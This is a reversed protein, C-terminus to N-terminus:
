NSNCENLNKAILAQNGTNSRRKMKGNLEPVLRITLVASVATAFIVLGFTSFEPIVQTGIIDIQKNVISVGSFPFELSLTSNTRTTKIKFEVENGDVLVKFDGSLLEQPVTVDLFSTSSALGRIGLSVKKEEQIFWFDCITGKSLALIDFHQEGASVTLKANETNLYAAGGYSNGWSNTLDCPKPEETPYSFTYHKGTEPDKWSGEPEIGTGPYSIVLRFYRDGYKCLDIMQTHQADIFETIIRGGIIECSEEIITGYITINSHSGYVLTSPFFSLILSILIAFILVAKYKM